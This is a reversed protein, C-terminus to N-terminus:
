SIKSGSELKGAMALYTVVVMHFVYLSFSFIFPGANYKEFISGGIYQLITIGISGFLFNFGFM